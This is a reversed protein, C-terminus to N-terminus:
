KIIIQQFNRFREPMNLLNDNVYQLYDAILQNDVGLILGAQNDTLSLMAVKIQTAFILYAHNEAIIQPGVTKTVINQRPITIGFKPGYCTDTKNAVLCKTQEGTFANTLHPNTLDLQQILQAIYQVGQISKPFQDDHFLKVFKDQFVYKPDFGFGINTLIQQHMTLEVM